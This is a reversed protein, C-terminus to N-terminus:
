KQNTYKPRLWGRSEAWDELESNDFVDDPYFNSQVYKLLITSDINKLDIDILVSTSASMGGGEGM